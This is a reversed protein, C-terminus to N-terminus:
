LRSRHATDPPAGRPLLNTYRANRGIPHGPEAISRLTHRPIFRATSTLDRPALRHHASSNKQISVTDDTAIPAQGTYTIRVPYTIPAACAIFGVIAALVALLVLRNEPQM